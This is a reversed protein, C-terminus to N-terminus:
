FEMLALVAISSCKGGVGVLYKLVFSCASAILLLFSFLIFHFYVFSGAPAFFLCALLKSPFAPSHSKQPIFAKFLKQTISYFKSAGHIGLALPKSLFYGLVM